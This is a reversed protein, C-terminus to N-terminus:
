RSRAREYTANALTSPTSPRGGDDLDGPGRALLGKALSQLTAIAALDLAAVWDFDDVLVVALVSGALSSLFTKVLRVVVDRWYSSRIRAAVAPVYLVATTALSALAAGFSTLLALGWPLDVLEAGGTTTLLVATFQQGATWGAREAFDLAIARPRTPTTATTPM